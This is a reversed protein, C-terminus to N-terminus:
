FDVSPLKGQILEFQAQTCEACNCGLRDLIPNSKQILQPAALSPIEQTSVVAIAPTTYANLSSAQAPNALMLISALFAPCVLLILKAINM